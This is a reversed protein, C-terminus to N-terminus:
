TTPAHAPVWWRRAYLMLTRSVRIVGLVVPSGSAGVLTGAAFFWVM